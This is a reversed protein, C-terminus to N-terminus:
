KYTTKPKEQRLEAVTKPLPRDYKNTDTRNYGLNLGTAVKTPQIPLENRRDKSPMYASDYFDTVVSQGYPNTLGLFPSFLPKPKNFDDEQQVLYNYSPDKHSTLITNVGVPKNINILYKNMVSDPEPVNDFWNDDIESPLLDDITLINSNTNTTNNTQKLINNPVIPCVEPSFVVPLSTLYTDPEISSQMWPTNWPGVFNKPLYPESRLDYNHKYTRPNITNVGIKNFTEQTTKKLEKQPQESGYILKYAVQLQQEYIPNM